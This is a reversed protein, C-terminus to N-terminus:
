NLKSILKKEIKSFDGKKLPMIKDSRIHKLKKMIKKDEHIKALTVNLTIRLLSLVNPSKCITILLFYNSKKCIIYEGQWYFELETINKSKQHFATLIRSLFHSVKELHINKYELGKKAIIEGSMSALFVGQVGDIKVIDDLLIDVM